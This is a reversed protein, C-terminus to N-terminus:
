LSIINCCVFCSTSWWNEPLLNHRRL